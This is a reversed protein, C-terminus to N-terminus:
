FGNNFSSRTTSIDYADVVVSKLAIAAELKSSISVIETAELVAVKAEACNVPSVM